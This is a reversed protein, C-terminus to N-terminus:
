AVEAMANGSHRGDIADEDLLPRDIGDGSNEEQGTSFVPENTGACRM